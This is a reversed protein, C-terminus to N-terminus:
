DISELYEINIGNHVDTLGEAELVMKAHGSRNGSRCYIILPTDMSKFEEIRADLEDLPIHIANEYRGLEVEEYTRVDVVTGVDIMERTIDIDV